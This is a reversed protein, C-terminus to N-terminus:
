TYFNAKNNLHVKFFINVRNFRKKTKQVTIIRTPTVPSSLDFYTHSSFFNDDSQLCRRLFLCHSPFEVNRHRGNVFQKRLLQKFNNAFFRYYLPMRLTNQTISKTWVTPLKLYFISSGAPEFDKVGSSGFNLTILVLLLHAKVIDKFISIIIDSLRTLRM